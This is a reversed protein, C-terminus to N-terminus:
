GNATTLVEALGAQVLPESPLAFLAARVASSLSFPKVVYDMFAQPALYVLQLYPATVM